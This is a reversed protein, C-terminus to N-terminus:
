IIQLRENTVLTKYKKKSQTEEIEYVPPQNAQLHRAIITYTPQYRWRHDTARFSGQLKKGNILEPQNLKLRVQTGVDILYNANKNFLTHKIFEKRQQPPGRQNIENILEPLLEVWKTSQKGTELEILVQKEWLKKGIEKNKNEVHAQQTHVYPETLKLTINNEECWEKFVKNNFQNDAQLTLPPELMDSQNYIDILQDTIEKFFLSKLPRAEVYSNSVDVLTLIYKYGNDNTFHLVDIEHFANPQTITIHPFNPYEKIPKRYLNNILSSM